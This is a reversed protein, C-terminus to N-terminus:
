TAAQKLMRALRFAIQEAEKESQRRGTKWLYHHGLEHLLVHGLIFNRLAEPTWRLLRVGNHQDVRAGWQIWERDSPSHPTPHAVYALSAPYPFIRLTGGDAYDADIGANNRVQNCLRVEVLGEVYESPLRRLQRKLDSITCPYVM